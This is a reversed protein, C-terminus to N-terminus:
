RNKEMEIEREKEEEDERIKDLNDFYNYDYNTFSFMKDWEDYGWKDIYKETRKDHLDVLFNYTDYVLDYETKEIENIVIPKKKTIKARWM